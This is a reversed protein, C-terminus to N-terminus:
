RMLSIIRFERGGKPDATTELLECHLLHEGAKLDARITAARIRCSGSPGAARLHCRIMTLCWTTGNSTVPNSKVHRSGHESFGYWEGDLTTSRMGTGL